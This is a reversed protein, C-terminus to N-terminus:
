KAWVHRVRYIRGLQSQDGLPRGIAVHEIGPGPGQLNAALQCARFSQMAILTAMHAVYRGEQCYINRRGAIKFKAKSQGSMDLVISVDLNAKIGCPAGQLNAALQCARFSQMAILTAMHAVYRVDDMDAIANNANFM